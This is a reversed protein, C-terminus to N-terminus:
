ENKIGTTEPKTAERNSEKQFFTIYANKEPLESIGFNRCCRSDDYSEVSGDHNIYRSM